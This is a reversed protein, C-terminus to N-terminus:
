KEKPIDSFTKIEGENKFSIKLIKLISSRQRRVQMIESSFDAAIEDKNRQVYCTM